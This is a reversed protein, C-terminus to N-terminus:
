KVLARISAKLDALQKRTDALQTMLGATDAGEGMHPGLIDMPSIKLTKCLVVLASASLRNIGSEIKQIQQFTIGLPEGLKSQNIGQITRATRIAAGIAQDIESTVIRSSPM